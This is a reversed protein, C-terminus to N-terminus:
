ILISGGPLSPIPLMSRILRNIGIDLYIKKTNCTNVQNTKSLSKTAIQSKRKNLGEGSQEKNINTQKGHTHIVIELFADGEFNTLGTDVLTFM